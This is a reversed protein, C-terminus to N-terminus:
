DLPGERQMLDDITMGTGGLLLGCTARVRQMDKAIRARRGLVGLRVFRDVDFLVPPEDLSYILVNGARLDLRGIRHAHLRHAISLIETALRIRQDKTLTGARSAEEITMADTPSRTVIFSAPQGLFRKPEALEGAAVLPATRLSMRLLTTSWDVHRRAPTPWISLGSRRRISFGDEAFWKLYDTHGRGVHRFIRRSGSTAVPTWGDPVDNGITRALCRIADLLAELPAIGNLPPVLWRISGDGERTRM